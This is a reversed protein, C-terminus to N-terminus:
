IKVLPYEVILVNTIQMNYILEALPNKGYFIILLDLSFLFVLLTHFIKLLKATTLCVIFIKNKLYSFVFYGRKSCCGLLRRAKLFLM